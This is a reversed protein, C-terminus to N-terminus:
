TALTSGPTDPGLLGASRLQNVLWGVSDPKGMAGEWGDLLHEVEARPSVTAVVSVSMGEIETEDERHSGSVHIGGFPDAFEHPVPERMVYLEGTDEVWNVEYRVGFKDRWDTGFELEGSSRRREDEDYFEEIDVTPVTTPAGGPSGWPRHWIKKPPPLDPPLLGACGAQM